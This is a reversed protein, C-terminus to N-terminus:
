ARQPVAGAAQRRRAALWRLGIALVVAAAILGGGILPRFALWSLGITLLTLPTAVIIAVLLAAFNVIGALFPLVSALWALPSSLLAIGFLMMLFGAGRLIWTLLAEDAKAQRFMSAADHDGTRVLNIVHGNPARYAALGGGSQRAVVSITQAPVARFAIHLDGIKPDDPTAGRYIAEGERRFGAPLEADRAPALPEFADIQRVQGPDLTFAGLKVPRADFVQGRYPMAPNGHGDPRQFASSDIAEDSWGRTYRYTTRTIETGGVTTETTTKEHEHWQYMAVRRELRLLDAGGAAFVPDLLPVTATAVATVHVLSGENGRDVADPPVSVVMGSGADLAVIADVARGENWVLLPFSGLFLLIGFLAGLLSGAFRSGWSRETVVMVSDEPM